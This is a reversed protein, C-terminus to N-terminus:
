HGRCETVSYVPSLVHSKGSFAALPAAASPLVAKCVGARWRPSGLVDSNKGMWATQLPGTRKFAWPIPIVPLHALGLGKPQLPLYRFM